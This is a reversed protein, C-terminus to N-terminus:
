VQRARCDPGVRALVNRAPVRRLTHWEGNAWDARIVFREHHIKVALEGLHAYVHAVKKRQFEIYAHRMLAQESLAEDVIVALHRQHRLVGLIGRPAQGADCPDNASVGDVTRLDRKQHGVLELVATQARIKQFARNADGSFLADGHQFGRSQRFVEVHLIHEYLRAETERRWFIAYDRCFQTQTSGKVTFRGSPSKYSVNTSLKYQKCGERAAPFPKRRQLADPFDSAAAAPGYSHVMSRM